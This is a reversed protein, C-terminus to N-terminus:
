GNAALAFAAVLGVAALLLGLKLAKEVFWVSLGEGLRLNMMRAHIAACIAMHVPLAVFVEVIGAEWLPYGGAVYVEALGAALIADAVTPVVLLTLVIGVTRLAGPQPVGALRCALRFAGVEFALVAFLVTGLCLLVAVVQAPNNV